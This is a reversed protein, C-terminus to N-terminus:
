NKHWRYRRFMYGMEGWDTDVNTEIEELEVQGNEALLRWLRAREDEFKDRLPVQIMLTGEPALFQRIASVVWEPHHQSYIPDSVVIVPYKIPGFRAIFETPDRWDLSHVQTKDCLNNLELNHQLNGCIEPLDTLMVRHGKAACMMGVLGTGAGLELIDGSPINLNILRKALVLLSGWTKLGLNDSTLAPEFLKFRISDTFIVTRTIDPLATRGCNELLRKSALQRITDADDESLWDLPSSVIRTMYGNYGTADVSRLRDSAEVLVSLEEESGFRNGQASLWQLGVFWDQPHSLLVKPDVAERQCTDRVDIVYQPAVVELLMRMVEVPPHLHLLPFDLIHVGGSADADDDADGGCVVVPEIGEPDDHTPTATFLDLPDFM